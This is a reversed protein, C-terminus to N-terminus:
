GNLKEKEALHRRVLSVFQRPYTPKIPRRFPVTVIVEVHPSAFTYHSGRAPARVVLGVRRAEEIFDDIKWDGAPNEQMRELIARKKAM